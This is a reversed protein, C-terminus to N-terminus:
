SRTCSSSRIESGSKVLLAQTADGMEKTRRSQVAFLQAGRRTAGRVRLYAVPQEEELEAGFTLIVAGKGLSGLNSGSALGVNLVAEEIGTGTPWHLRHDIHNTGLVERLFRSFLYFDENAVM